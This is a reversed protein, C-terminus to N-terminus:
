LLLWCWCGCWCCWWWWWMDDGHDGHDGHDDHVDHDDHDDHDLHDDAAGGVYKSAKGVWFFVACLFFLSSQMPPLGTRQKRDLRKKRKKGLVHPEGVWQSVKLIALLTSMKSCQSMSYASKLGAYFPWKNWSCAATQLSVFKLKTVKPRPLCPTVQKGHLPSYDAHDASKAMPHCKTIKTAWKKNAFYDHENQSTRTGTM